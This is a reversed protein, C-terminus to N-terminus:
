SPEIPWKWSKPEAQWTTTHRAEYEKRTLLIQWMNCTAIVAGGGAQLNPPVIVEVSVDDVKSAVCKFRTYITNSEDWANCNRESEQSSSESRWLWASNQISYDDQYNVRTSVKSCIVYKDFEPTPLPLIYLDCLGM